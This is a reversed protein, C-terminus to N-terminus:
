MGGRKLLKAINETTQPCCRAALRQEFFFKDARTPWSALVGYNFKAETKLDSVADTKFNEDGSQCYSIEFVGEPTFLAPILKVPAIWM